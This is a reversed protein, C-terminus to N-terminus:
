SLLETVTGVEVRKKETMCQLWLSTMWGGSLLSSRLGKICTDPVSDKFGPFTSYSFSVNLAVFSKKKKQWTSLNAHMCLCGGYVCVSTYRSYNTQLSCRIVSCLLAQKNHNKKLAHLWPCSYQQFSTFSQSWFTMLLAGALGKGWVELYVSRVALLFPHYFTLM